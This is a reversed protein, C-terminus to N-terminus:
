PLLRQFPQMTMVDLRRLTLWPMAMLEAIREDDWTPWDDHVAAVLKGSLGDSAPSALYVALTAPLEAPTGGTAAVQEADSRGIPGARDGAALMAELMRTAVAGPAIANVDIGHERVEAALTETFRVIAAKSAAYASFRPRAATAGGGSLNIIKGYGHAIMGPLVAKSCFFAGVLNTEVTRVWEAPDNEAVLGIPGQVGANNVLIQVPGYKATVGTVLAQVANWDAVDVTQAQGHGGHEKLMAVTREIEAGTRAVAIVRAGAESVALAIARGIGRGAGTIIATKGKLPRRSRREVSDPKGSSM